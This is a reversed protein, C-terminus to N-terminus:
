PLGAMSKLKLTSPSLLTSTYTQLTTRLLRDPFTCPHRLPWCLVVEPNGRTAELTRYAARSRPMMCGSKGGSGTELSLWRLLSVTLLYTRLLLILVKTHISRLV